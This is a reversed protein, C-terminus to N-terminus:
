RAFGEGRRVSVHVGAAVVQVHRQQHPRDLGEDRVAVFQGPVHDELELRALFADVTAEVHQVLTEEVDRSPAGLGGPGNM